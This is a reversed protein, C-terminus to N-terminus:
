CDSTPPVGALMAEAVVTFAESWAEEVEDTFADGLGQGLTWMLAARVKEYDDVKAGYGVHARGLHRLPEAIREVDDLGAVAQDLMSVFMRGQRKMDGSFHHRVEPYTEFLRGYFWEAADEKRARMPAWSSQVLTRQEPTM